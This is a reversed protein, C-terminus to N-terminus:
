WPLVNRSAGWRGPCTGDRTFIYEVGSWRMFYVPEGLLTSKFYGVHPDSSLPMDPGYGLAHALQAAETRRMMTRYTIARADGVMQQVLEGARSGYVGRMGMCNTALHFRERNLDGRVDRDMAACSRNYGKTLVDAALVKRLRLSLDDPAVISTNVGLRMRPRPWKPKEARIAAVLEDSLMGKNYLYILSGPKKGWREVRAALTLGEDKINEAKLTWVKPAGEREQRAIAKQEYTVVREFMKPDLLRNAWFWSVPQFHCSFCGSKYIFPWGTKALISEEDAKSIEMEALPYVKRVAWTLLAKSRKAGLSRGLGIPAKPDWTRMRGTEDAAIGIMLVNPELEGRSAQVGWTDLSIGYKLLLLDNLVEEVPIIKHRETCTATNYGTTREYLGTARDLDVFAHYGGRAAKDQMERLTPRSGKFYKRKRWAGVLPEGKRWRKMYALQERDTPKALNFFPVGAKSCVRRVIPALDMTHDWELGTDSFIVADLDALKVGRRGLVTIGRGQLLALITMSDRGLGMSLALLPTPTAGLLEGM